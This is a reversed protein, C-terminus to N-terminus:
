FIQEKGVKLSYIFDLYGVVCVYLNTCTKEDFEVTEPTLLEQEERYSCRSLELVYDQHRVFSM